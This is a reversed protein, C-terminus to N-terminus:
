WICPVLRYRVRKAYEAYGDLRERLFRDEILTRRVVLVLFPAVAVAAIWSGLAPGSAFIAFLFGTYGPHRVLRYPGATVLHHGRETQLRV